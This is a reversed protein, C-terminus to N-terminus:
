SSSSSSSFYEHIVDLDKITRMPLPNAATPPWDKCDFINICPPVERSLLIVELHNVKAWIPVKFILNYYRGKKIKINRILFELVDHSPVYWKGVRQSDLMRPHPSVQQIFESRKLKKFAVLVFYCNRVKM